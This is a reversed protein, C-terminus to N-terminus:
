LLLPKMYSYMDGRADVVLVLVREMEPNLYRSVGEPLQTHRTINETVVFSADGIFESTWIGNPVMFPDISFKPVEHISSQDLQGNQLDRLIAFLDLCRFDDTHVLMEDKLRGFNLQHTVSADLDMLESVLAGDNQSLMIRSSADVPTIAGGFPRMDGLPYAAILVTEGVPVHIDIVREESSVHMCNLNSGDTWKLTYWLRQGTVVEWPHTPITVTVRRTTSVMSCSVMVVIAFASFLVCIRKMGRM